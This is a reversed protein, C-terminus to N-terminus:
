PMMFSFTLQEGKRSVHEIEEPYLPFYGDQWRGDKVQVYKGDFGIIILVKTGLYPFSEPDKLKVKDGIKFNHERM